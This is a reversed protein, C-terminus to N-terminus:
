EVENSALWANAYEILSSMRARSMAASSERINCFEGELGPVMQAGLGTAIAHGSIFLVKWQELTLKKGGYKRTKAADSCTAHFKASQDLNRGPPAIRVAYGDPAGIVARAANRRAQAHALIFLQKDTM